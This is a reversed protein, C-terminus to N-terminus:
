LEFLPLFPCFAVDVLFSEDSVPEILNNHIYTNSLTM